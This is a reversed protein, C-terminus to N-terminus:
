NKKWFILRTTDKQTCQAKNSKLPNEPTGKKIRLEDKYADLGVQIFAMTEVFRREHNLHNLESNMDNIRAQAQEPSEVGTKAAKAKAKHFNRCAKDFEALRREFPTMEHILPSLRKGHLYDM